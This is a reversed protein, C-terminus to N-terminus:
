LFSLIAGIVIITNSILLMSNSLFGIFMFSPFLKALVLEIGQPGIFSDRYLIMLSWIIGITCLVLSTVIGVLPKANLQVTTNM